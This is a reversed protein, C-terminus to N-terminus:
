VREEERKQEVERKPEEISPALPQNPELLARLSGLRDKVLPRFRSARFPTDVDGWIECTGRDIGVLRLGIYTGELYHTHEGIWRIRYVAGETLESPLTTNAPQKASICVVDQGVYFQHANTM